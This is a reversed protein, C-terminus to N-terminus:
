FLPCLSVTGVKQQGRGETAGRWLRNVSSRTGAAGTGGYTSENQGKSVINCAYTVKLHLGKSAESSSLDM